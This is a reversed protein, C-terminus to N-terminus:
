VVGGLSLTQDWNRVGTSGGMATVCSAAVATAVRGAQQMDYGRLKGAIFGALFSDGAGTTDIVPSPPKIAPLHLYKGAQDSLMVGQEGLKVGLIGAAGADRFVDIMKQPDSEGTQHTAEAFSPIYIDLHPLIRDLPEMSGGDGAADMVTKVGRKRLAAFLQPLDEQLDPMLSYYGALFFSSQTLTELHDMCTQINLRKAAGQCHIFAREGSPDIAVVTTSTPETPHTMLLDTQVNEATLVDRVMKGWPDNGVYTFVKAVHGLRALTISSNCTLGGGTLQMPSIRHVAASSLPVDLRLPHALIDLVCSGAVICDISKTM